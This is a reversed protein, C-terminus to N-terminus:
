HDVLAVHGRCFLEQPRDNRAAAFERVIRQFGTLTVPFVRCPDDGNGPLLLAFGSAIVEAEVFPFIVGVYSIEGFDPRRCPIPGCRRRLPRVWLCSGRGYRSPKAPVIDGHIQAPRVSVALRRVQPLFLFIFAKPTGRHIDVECHWFQRRKGKRLPM